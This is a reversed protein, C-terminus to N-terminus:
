IISQHGTCCEQHEAHGVTQTSRSDSTMKFCCECWVSTHVLLTTLSNFNSVLQCNALCQEIDTVSNRNNSLDRWPSSWRVVVTWISREVESRGSLARTLLLYHHLRSSSSIRHQRVIVKISCGAYDRSVIVDRSLHTHRWTTLSFLFFIVRTFSFFTPRPNLEWRYYHPLRHNISVGEIAVFTSSRSHGQVVLWQQTRLTIRTTVFHSWTSATPRLLFGNLSSGM